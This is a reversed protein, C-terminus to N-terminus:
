SPLYFIKRFTMLCEKHFNRIVPLPLASGWKYAEHADRRVREVDLKRGRAMLLEVAATSSVVSRAEGVAM